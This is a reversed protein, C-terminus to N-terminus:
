ATPPRSPPATARDSVTENRLAFRVKAILRAQWPPVTSLKATQHCPCSACHQVLGDETQDGAARALGEVVVAAMSSARAPNDSASASQFPSLLLCIGLLVALARVWLSTAGPGTGHRGMRM